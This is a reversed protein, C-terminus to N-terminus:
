RNALITIAERSWQQLMSQASTPSAIPTLTVNLQKGLRQARYLHYDSSLVCLQGTLGRARILEVSRALNQKTNTATPELLLQQPRIGQETLYARMVEAETLNGERTPGGTLVLTARPRKRAVAAAQNLRRALTPRPRGNQTAGGLVIVVADDEVRAAPTYVARMRVFLCGFVVAVLVSLCILLVNFVFAGASVGSLLHALGAPGVSVVAVPVMGVSPRNHTLVYWVNSGTLTLWLVLCAIWAPSIAHASLAFLAASCVVCVGTCALTAPALRKETSELTGGNGGM